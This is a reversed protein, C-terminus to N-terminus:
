GVMQEPKSWVFCWLEADSAKTLPISRHGTFEGWLPGTVRFINGNSSMMMNHLLNIVVYFIPWARYEWIIIRYDLDFRIHFQRIVDDFPFIKSMVPGKLPSNVPWRNIGKVSALLASSQHKRQDAGSYVSSYVSTLSIIQSAMASM